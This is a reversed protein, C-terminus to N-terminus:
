EEAIGSSGDEVQPFAGANEKRWRWAAAVGGIELTPAAAGGRQEGLQQLQVLQPIRGDLEKDDQRLNCTAGVLAGVHLQAQLGRHQVPRQSVGVALYFGCRASEQPVYVGEPRRRRLGQLGGHEFAHDVAQTVAAHRDAAHSAPCHAVPQAVHGDAHVGNPVGVWTAALRLAPPHLLGPPRYSHQHRQDVVGVGQRPAVATFGQSVQPVHVASQRQQQGLVHKHQEESGGASVAVVGHPPGGHGCQGHVAPLVSYPLYHSSSMM